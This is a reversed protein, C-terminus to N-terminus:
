CEGNGFSMSTLVCSRMSRRPRMSPDTWRAASLSPTLSYPQCTAQPRALASRRPRSANPPVPVRHRVARCVCGRTENGAPRRFPASPPASITRSPHEACTRRMQTVAQRRVPVRVRGRIRAIQCGHRHGGPMAVAARHRGFKVRVPGEADGGVNCFGHAGSDCGPRLAGPARGRRGELPSARALRRARREVAKPPRSSDLRRRLLRPSTMTPRRIVLCARAHSTKPNRCINSAYDGGRPAPRLKWSTAYPFWPSGAAPNSKTIKAAYHTAFRALPWPCVRNELIRPGTQRCTIKMKVYRM